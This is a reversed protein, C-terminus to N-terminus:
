KGLGLKLRKSLKLNNIWIVFVVIVLFVIIPYILTSFLQYIFNFFNTFGEINAERCFKYSLGFLFMLEFYSIAYLLIKIYRFNNITIVKGENSRRHKWEIKGAGYITLFFTFLIILIFGLYSISNQTTFQKGNPTIKFPIVEPQVVGEKDGVVTYFYEGLSSTDCFTYNYETGDKTMAVNMLNITANPYKIATLNVYSCSPCSQYLNICDNQKATGLSSLAGSLSILFMGLIITILIKKNEKKNM